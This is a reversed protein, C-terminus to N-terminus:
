RSAIACYPQRNAGIFMVKVGRTAYGENRAGPRAIQVRIPGQSGNRVYWPRGGGRCVGNSAMELRPIAIRWAVFMGLRTHRRLSACGQNRIASLSSPPKFVCQRYRFHSTKHQQYEGHAQLIEEAVEASTAAKVKPPPKPAVLRAVGVFGICTGGFPSEKAAEGEATAEEGVVEPPGAGGTAAHHHRPM